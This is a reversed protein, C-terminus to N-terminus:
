PKRRVIAAVVELVTLGIPIMWYGPEDTQTMAVGITIGVFVHALAKYVNPWDLQLGNLKVRFREVGFLIAFFLLLSFM